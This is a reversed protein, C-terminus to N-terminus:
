RLFMSLLFSFNPHAKESFYGDEPEVYLSLSTDLPIANMADEAATTTLRRLRGDFDPMSANRQVYDDGEMINANLVHKGHQSHKMNNDRGTVQTRTIQAQRRTPGVGTTMSALDQGSTAGSVAAQAQAQAELTPIDVGNVHVRGDAEVKAYQYKPKAKKKNEYEDLEKLHKDMAISTSKHKRPQQVAQPFEQCSSDNLVLIFTLALLQLWTVKNTPLYITM